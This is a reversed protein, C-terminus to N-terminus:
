KALEKQIQEDLKAKEKADGRALCEGCMLLNGVLTLAGNSCENIICKPREAWGNGKIM